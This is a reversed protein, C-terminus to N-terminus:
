SVFRWEKYQPPDSNHVEPSLQFNQVRWGYMSLQLYQPDPFKHINQSTEKVGEGCGWLHCFIGSGRSQSM